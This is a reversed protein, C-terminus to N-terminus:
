MSSKEKPDLRSARVDIGKVISSANKQTAVTQKNWVFTLVDRFYQFDSVLLKRIQETETRDQPVM